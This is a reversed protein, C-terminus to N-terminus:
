ATTKKSSKKKRTNRKAKPKEEVPKEEVVRTTKVEVETEAPTEVEDVQIQTENKPLGKPGGYLRRLVERYEALYQEERPLLKFGPIQERQILRNVEHIDFEELPRLEM